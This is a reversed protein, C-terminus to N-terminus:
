VANARRHVPRAKGLSTRPIAAVRQGAVRHPALGAGRLAAEVLVRVDVARVADSTTVILVRLGDVEEIVQWGALPLADPVAHFVNPRAVM